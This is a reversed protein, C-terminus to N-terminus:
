ERNASKKMRAILGDWGDKKLAKRFSRKYTRLQSAEDVVIDFIRWRGELPRLSYWVDARTRKVKIETRVQVRGDKGKRVKDELTVAVDHRPKFRKVYARRLMKELLQLFEERQAPKRAAWQKAGLIRQAMYPFDVHKSLHEGIAAHLAQLRKHTEVMNDLQGHMRKIFAKAPEKPQAFAPASLVFAVLAALSRLAVKKTQQRTM